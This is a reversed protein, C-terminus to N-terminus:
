DDLGEGSKCGDLCEKKLEQEAVIYEPSEEERGEYGDSNIKYIDIVKKQKEILTRNEFAAMIFLRINQKNDKIEEKLEGNKEKLQQYDSELEKNTEYSRVREATLEEKLKEIVEKYRIEELEYEWSLLLKEKFYDPYEDWKDAKEKLQQNQIKFQQILEHDEKSVFTYNIKKDEKLAKIEEELKKIYDEDDSDEDSADKLKQKIFKLLQKDTPENKYKGTLESLQDDTLCEIITKTNM